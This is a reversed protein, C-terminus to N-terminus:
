TKNGGGESQSQLSNASMWAVEKKLEDRIKQSPTLSNILTLMIKDNDHKIKKVKTKDM